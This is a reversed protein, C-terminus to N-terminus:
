PIWNQYGDDIENNTIKIEEKTEINMIYIEYDGDKGSAFVIWNDDPSWRATFEEAPHNTLRVEEDTEFNYIYLNINGDRDSHYIIEKGDHSWSPYRDTSTNNTIKIDKGSGDSNMYYIDWDGDRDSMFTIFKGDSSWAPLQSYGRAKTLQSVEYTELDIVYIEAEDLTMNEILANRNSSFAIKKDDPSWAPSSEQLFSDIRNKGVYMPISSIKEQNNGDSDMIYIEVLWWPNGYYTAGNNVAKAYAIKDGDNSASPSLFSTKENSQPSIQITSFDDLSTVYIDSVDENIISSNRTTHLIKGSSRGLPTPAITPTAKAQETAAVNTKEYIGALETGAPSESITPQFCGTLLPLGSCLLFLHRKKM